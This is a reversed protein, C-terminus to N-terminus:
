ELYLSRAGYDIFSLLNRLDPISYIKQNLLNKDKLDFGHFGNMRNMTGLQQRMQPKRIQPISEYDVEIGLMQTISHLPDHIAKLSFAFHASSASTECLGGRRFRM